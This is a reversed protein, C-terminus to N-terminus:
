SNHLSTNAATVSIVQAVHRQWSALLLVVGLLM